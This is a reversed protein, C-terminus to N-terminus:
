TGKTQQKVYEAYELSKAPDAALNLSEGNTTVDTASKEVYGHKSSLMMKAITPNYEGSLGRNLLRDAQEVKLDDLIDSFEPHEEKWAYVTERSVKLRRALGEVTPLKVRITEWHKGSESEFHEVEDVCEDVYGRAIDVLEPTYVSPRGGAHKMPLDKTDSM